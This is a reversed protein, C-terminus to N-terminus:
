GAKGLIRGAPPTGGLRALREDGANQFRRGVRCRGSGGVPRGAGQGPVQACVGREHLSDPGGMAQLGVSDPGKLEAPIRVELVFQLVHHAQIQVRRLMGHDQAHILVALDLRQIAGLGAQGELGTAAARHRVVVLAMAGGREKGGQINGFARDDGGAPRAMPVLFPQREQTQNIALDGRALGQMQDSVVIGCVFVGRDLPPQHAVRADVHMERGGATRPEVQHFADKAVQCGLLNTASDKATDRLQNRRNVRVDGLAIRMGCGKHPGFSCLLDQRFYM